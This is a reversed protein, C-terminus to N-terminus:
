DKNRRAKKAKLGYSWKFVPKTWVFLWGILWAHCPFRSQTIKARRILTDGSKWPPLKSLLLSHREQTWGLAPTGWAHELTSPRLTDLATQWLSHDAIAMHLTKVSGILQVTGAFVTFKSAVTTFANVLAEAAVIDTIAKIVWIFHVATLLAPTNNYLTSLVRRQEFFSINM